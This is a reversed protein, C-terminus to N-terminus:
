TFLSASTVLLCSYGKFFYFLFLFIKNRKKKNYLSRNRYRQYSDFHFIDVVQSFLRSNRYFTESVAECVLNGFVLFWNPFTVTLACSSPTPVNLRQARGDVSLKKTSLMEISTLWGTRWSSDLAMCGGLPPRRVAETELSGRSTSESYDTLSGTANPKTSERSPKLIQVFDRLARSKHFSKLLTEARSGLDHYPKLIKPCPEIELYILHYYRTGCRTVTKDLVVLCFSKTICTSFFSLEIFFITKYFPYCCM